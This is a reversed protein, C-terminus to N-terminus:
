NQGFFIINDKKDKKDPIKFCINVHKLIGFIIDELINYRKMIYM